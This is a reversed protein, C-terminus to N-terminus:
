LTCVECDQEPYVHEIEPYQAPSESIVKFTKEDMNLDIVVSSTNNQKTLQELRDSPNIIFSLKYKGSPLDTVNLAQDPYTYFYTDGWGVSIGQKEKGCIQYKADTRNELELDIRSVDRICFTSKMMVGSLDPVPGDVEVAELDYIAFDAFHYHLHEQHWLFNGALKERTSGDEHYIVQFVDREVDARIGKTKTDAQLELVGRGQNYYITSFRLYVNGNSEEIVLDQPPLPALDPLLEQEREVYLKINELVEDSINESIFQKLTSTSNYTDQVKSIFLGAVKPVTDHDATLVYDGSVYIPFLPDLTPNVYMVTSTQFIEKERESWGFRDTVVEAVISGFALWQMQAWIIPFSKKENNDWTLPVELRSAIDQRSLGQSLTVIQERAASTPLAGKSLVYWVSGVMIAAVVSLFIFKKM